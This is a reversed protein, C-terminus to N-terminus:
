REPGALAVAGRGDQDCAASGGCATVAGVGTVEDDPSGDSVIGVALGM